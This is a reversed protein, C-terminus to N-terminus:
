GKIGTPKWDYYTQQLHSYVPEIPIIFLLEESLKFIVHFLSFSCLVLSYNIASHLIYQDNMGNVAKCLLYAPNLLHFTEAKVLRCTHHSRLGTHTLDGSYCMCAPLQSQSRWTHRHPCFQASVGVHKSKGLYFFFFFFFSYQKKVIRVAKKQLFGTCWHPDGLM